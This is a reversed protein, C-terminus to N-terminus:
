RVLQPPGPRDAYADPEYRDCVARWVRHNRARAWVLLAIVAALAGCTVLTARALHWTLGSGM